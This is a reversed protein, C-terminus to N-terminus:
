AHMIDHVCVRNDENNNIVNCPLFNSLITISLESSSNRAIILIFILKWFDIYLPICM